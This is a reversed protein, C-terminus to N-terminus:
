PQSPNTKAEALNRRDAEDKARQYFDVRDSCIPGIRKTRLTRVNSVYWHDGLSDVGWHGLPRM